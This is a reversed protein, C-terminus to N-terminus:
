EGCECDPQEASNTEKKPKPLDLKDAIRVILFAAGVLALIVIGLTILKKNKM